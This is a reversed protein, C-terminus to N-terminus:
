TFFHIPRCLELQPPRHVSPIRICSESDVLALDVCRTIDTAYPRLLERASRLLLGIHEHLDPRRGRPGMSNLAGGRAYVEKRPRLMRPICAPWNTQGSMGSSWMQRDSNIGRGLTDDRPAGVILDGGSSPCGGFSRDGARDCQQEGLRLRATVAARCPLLRRSKRAPPCCMRPPKLRVPAM